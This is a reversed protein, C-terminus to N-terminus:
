GIRQLDATYKFCSCGDDLVFPRLAAVGDPRGKVQSVFTMPSRFTALTDSGTRVQVAGFGGGAVITDRLFWTGECLKAAMHGAFRSTFTAGGKKLLDFCEKQAAILGPDQPWDVDQTPEWGAGMAGPMSGKPVNSAIVQPIETTNFAYRPHYGQSHAAPIFFLPATGATGVFVIHDVQAARFRLVLSSIQSSAAGLEGVSHYTPYSEEAAVTAGAALVRPKVVSKAVTGASGEDQWLLGVRAGKDFYGAGALTDVIAAWRDGVLYSPAYVANGWPRFAPSSHLWRTDLVFLVGAKALCDAFGEVGPNTSGSVVAFVKEDRTFTECAAAYQTVFNDRENYYKIVPVIKRGLIGGKANVADVITQTEGTEDGRTVQVGLAAYAAESSGPQTLYYGIKVQEGTVPPAGPGTSTASTGARTGTSVKGKATRTTGAGSSAAPVGPAGSGEPAAVPAASSSGASRRHKPSTTGCAAALVVGLVLVQAQRFSKTM